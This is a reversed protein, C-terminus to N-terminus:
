ASCIRSTQHYNWAKWVGYMHTSAAAVVLVHFIQHSSCWIDFSGPWISEPIRTVFFFVGALYIIGELFYYPMGSRVWMEQWGYLYLGHGIPVFGTLATAMFAYAKLARYKSHQLKPHLVATATISSFTVIMTWYFTRPTPLCYFGVYIGSFFSGVILILIGAYDIRLWLSAVDWSHSLLAHYSASLIFTIIAALVNSGIVIRDLLTAEPFHQTIKIQIAIQFIALVVAPVLHTYINMTENHLTVCSHLCSSASNSIQRYGSRIWPNDQFCEPLDEFLVIEIRGATAKVKKVAYASASSARRRLSQPRLHTAGTSTAMIDFLAEFSQQSTKRKAGQPPLSHLSVCLPLM